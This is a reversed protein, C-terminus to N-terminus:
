GVRRDTGTIRGRSPDYPSLELTVRDGPVVRVTRVRMESPVHGLVRQGDDLRIAYMTNPLVEVITGEVALRKREEGDGSRRDMRTMVLM